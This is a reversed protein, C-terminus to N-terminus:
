TEALDCEDCCGKRGLFCEGNSYYYCLLLGLNASGLMRIAWRTQKPDGAVPVTM